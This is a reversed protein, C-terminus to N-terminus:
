RGDEQWELTPVCAITGSGDPDVLVYCRGDGDEVRYVERTRGGALRQQWVPAPPPILRVFLSPEITRGGPHWLVYDGILYTTAVVV